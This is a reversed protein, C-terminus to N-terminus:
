TALFIKCWERRGVGQGASSEEHSYIGRARIYEELVGSFEDQASIRGDQAGTHRGSWGAVAM